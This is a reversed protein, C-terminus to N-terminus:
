AKVEKITLEIVPQNWYKFLALLREARKLSLEDVQDLTVGDFERGILDPDNFFEKIEAKVILLKAAGGSTKKVYSDIEKRLAIYLEPNNNELHDNFGQSIISFAKLNARLGAEDPKKWGFRKIWKSMTADTVDVMACIQKNTYKKTFFLRKAKYRKNRRSVQKEM